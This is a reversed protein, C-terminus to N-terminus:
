ISYILMILVLQAIMPLCSSMPNYGERQYLKQLEMNYKERNNGYKKQLDNMYPRMRVMNLQNKQQKMMLPFLVVKTVLAYFCLALAYNNFLDVGARMVWVFPTMLFDM